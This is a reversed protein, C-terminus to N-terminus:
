RFLIKLVICPCSREGGIIKKDEWDDDNQYMM